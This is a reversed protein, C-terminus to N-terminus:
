RVARFCVHQQMDQPLHGEAESRCSLLVVKLVRVEMLEQQCGQAPPFRGHKWLKQLLSPPGHELIDHQGVTAKDDFIGERLAKSITVVLLGIAGNSGEGLEVSPRYGIFVTRASKGELTGDFDFPLPFCLHAREETIDIGTLGPHMTYPIPYPSEKTMPSEETLDGGTPLTSGKKSYEFRNNFLSRSLSLFLSRNQFLPKLSM